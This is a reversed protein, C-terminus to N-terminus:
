YSGALTLMGGSHERWESGMRLHRWGGRSRRPASGSRKSLRRRQIRGIADRTNTGDRFSRHRSAERRVIASLRVIGYFIPPASPIRVGSKRRAFSASERVSSCGWAKRTHTPRPRAARHLNAAGSARCLSCRLLQITSLAEGQTQKTNQSSPPTKSLLKGKGRPLEGRHSPTM